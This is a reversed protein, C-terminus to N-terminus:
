AATGRKNATFHARLAPKSQEVGIDIELVSGDTFRLAIGDECNFTQITKGETHRLASKTRQAVPVDDPSDHM